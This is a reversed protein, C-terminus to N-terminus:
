IGTGALAAVSQPSWAHLVQDLDAIIDDSHEAGVCLPVRNPPVDALKRAEEGQPQHISIAPITAVSKIRGM